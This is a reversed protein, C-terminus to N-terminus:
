DLDAEFRGGPPVGHIAEAWGKALTAPARKATVIEAVTANGALLDRVTVVFGRPTASTDVAGVGALRGPKPFTAPTAATVALLRVPSKCRRLVGALDVAEADPLLPWFAVLDFRQAAAGLIDLAEDGSAATEPERGGAIVLWQRHQDRRAADQDVLLIRAAALVLPRPGAMSGTNVRSLSSVAAAM